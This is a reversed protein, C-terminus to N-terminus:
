LFAFDDVDLDDVDVGELIILHGGYGIVAGTAHDSIELADFRGAAGAGEVGRLRM